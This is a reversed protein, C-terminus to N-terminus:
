EKRESVQAPPRNNRGNKTNNSISRLFNELIDLRTYITAVKRDITNVRILLFLVLITLVPLDPNDLLIQILEHM